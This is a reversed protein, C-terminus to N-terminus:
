IRDLITGPGGWIGAPVIHLAADTKAGPTALFDHAGIREEARYERVIHVWADVGAGNV